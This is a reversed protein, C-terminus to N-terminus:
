RFGMGFRKRIKYLLSELFKQKFQDFIESKADGSNMAVAMRTALLFKLAQTAKSLDIEKTNGLMQLSIKNEEKEIWSEGLQSLAQEVQVSVDDFDDNKRPHEKINAHKNNLLGNVVLSATSEATESAEQQILELFQAYAKQNLSKELTEADYGYNQLGWYCRSLVENDVWGINYGQFQYLISERFSLLKSSKWRQCRENLAQPDNAVANYITYFWDYGANIAKTEFQRILDKKSEEILYVRLYKELDSQLNSFYIQEAKEKSIWIPGESLLKFIGRMGNCFDRHCYFSPENDEVLITFCPEYCCDYGYKKNFERNSDLHLGTLITEKICAVIIKIKRDIAKPSHFNDSLYLHSTIDKAHCNAMESLRGHYDREWKLFSPQLALYIVASAAISILILLIKKKM